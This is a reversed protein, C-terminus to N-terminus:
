HTSDDLRPVYKGEGKKEYRKSEISKINHSM